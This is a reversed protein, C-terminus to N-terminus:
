SAEKEMMGSTASVERRIQENINHRILEIAVHIANEFGLADMGGHSKVVIGNLGIFMAGNRQRPDIANAFTTLAPRALLYGIRARLSSKFAKKLYGKCLKGTGEATKLAINGTFGDAVIVDADGHSIGSGEVYVIFKIPLKTERLMKAAEQIEERGKM